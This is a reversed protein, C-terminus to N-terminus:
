SGCIVTVDGIAVDRMPLFYVVRDDARRLKVSLRDPGTSGGDVLFVQVLLNAQNTASDWALGSLSVTQGGFLEGLCSVETVQTVVVDRTSGATYDWLEFYPEQTNDLLAAFDVTAGTTRIQGNAYASPLAAPAARAVTALAPVLALSVSLIAVHIPRLM